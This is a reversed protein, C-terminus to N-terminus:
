WTARVSIELYSDEGAHLTNRVPYPPADVDFYVFGETFSGGILDTRSGLELLLRHGERYLNASVTLSLVLTVPEGPTLPEVADRQHVIETPTSRADDIKRIAARQYGFSLSRRGGGPDLDSLRATLYTDIATSSIRASLTVPGVMETDEAFPETAFSLVQAEYRDVEEPYLTHRPLALYSAEAAGAPTERALLQTEKAEASRPVPYFRVKQAGPM